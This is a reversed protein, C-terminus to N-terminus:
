DHHAAKAIIASGEAKAIVARLRDAMGHRDTFNPHSYDALCRRLMALMDPAASVLRAVHEQRTDFVHQGEDDYVSWWFTERRIDPEKNLTWTM